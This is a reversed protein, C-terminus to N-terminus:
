NELVVYEFTPSMSTNTFSLRFTEFLPYAVIAVMVLSAPVLLLYPFMDTKPKKQAM